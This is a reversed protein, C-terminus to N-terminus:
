DVNVSGGKSVTIIGSQNEAPLTLTIKLDSVNPPDILTPTAFSVKPAPPTFLVDRAETNCIGDFGSLSVCSIFLPSTVEFIQFAEVDSTYRKDAISCGIAPDTSGLDRFLIYRNPPEVHIGWGCVRETTPLSITDGLPPQLTPQFADLAFSRAQLLAGSLTAEEKFFTVQNQGGRSYFILSGLLTVTIAIVVLSEILTFGEVRGSGYEQKNKMM